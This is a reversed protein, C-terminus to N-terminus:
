IVKGIIMYSLVKSIKLELDVILNGIELRSDIHSESVNEKEEDLQLNLLAQKRKNIFFNIFHKSTNNSKGFIKNVENKIDNKSLRAINM